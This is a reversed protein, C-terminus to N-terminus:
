IKQGDKVWDARLMEGETAGDASSRMKITFPKLESGQTGIVIYGDDQRELSVFLKDGQRATDKYWDVVRDIPAPSRFKRTAVDFQSGPFLVRATDAKGDYLDSGPTGPNPASGRSAVNGTDDRAAISSQGDSCAALSILIIITGVRRISM